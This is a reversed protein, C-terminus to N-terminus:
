CFIVVKKDNSNNAELGMCQKKPYLGNKLDIGGLLDGFLVGLLTM